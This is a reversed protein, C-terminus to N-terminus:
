SFDNKCHKSREPDPERTNHHKLGEFSEINTFQVYRVKTKFRGAKSTIKREFIHRAEKHQGKKEEIEAGRCSGKNGCRSVIRITDKLFM